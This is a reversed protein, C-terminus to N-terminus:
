HSPSPNKQSKQPVVETILYEFFDRMSLVCNTPLKDLRGFFRVLYEALSSLSLTLTDGHFFANDFDYPVRMTIGYISRLMISLLKCEDITMSGFLTITLKDLQYPVDGDKFNFMSEPTSPASLDSPSTIFFAFSGRKRQM